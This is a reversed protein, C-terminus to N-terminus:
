GILKQLLLVLCLLINGSISRVDISQNEFEECEKHSRTDNWLICPRIVNGSKDILTAGHMHGSIGISITETFEKPKKIKLSELCELLLMSGSRQIKNVIDMKLTKSQLVPSDSTALINQDHDVLIMKVSSTGLDIGIFM